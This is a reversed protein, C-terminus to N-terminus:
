DRRNEFLYYLYTLFPLVILLVIALGANLWILTGEPAAAETYSLGTNGSRYFWPWQTSFWGLLICLSQLGAVLRMQWFHRHKLAWYLWPMSLLALIQVAIQLPNLAEQWSVRGLAAGSTLVLGGLLVTSVFFVVIRKQLLGSIKDDTGVEKRCNGYFFISALYTFLSAVFIGMLLGYFNLWPAFYFSWVDTHENLEIPNAPNMLGSIIMGFILPSGLSSLRFIWNYLRLHKHVEPDYKRFTFFAGRLLVFSLLVGLVFFYRTSLASYFHPFGVFLIVVVAILWVHNAEWIPALTSQIKSQIKPYKKLSMELIGAGFDAGGFLVYASLATLLLIKTMEVM